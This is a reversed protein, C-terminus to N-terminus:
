TLNQHELAPDRAPFRSIVGSVAGLLGKLRTFFQSFIKATCGGAEPVGALALVAACFAVGWSLRVRM